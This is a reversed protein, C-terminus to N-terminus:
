SAAESPLSQEPVPGKVRRVIDGIEKGSFRQMQGNGYADFNGALYERMASVGKLFWKDSNQKEKSMLYKRAAEYKCNKCHRNTAKPDQDVRPEAKCGTCLLVEAPASVESM